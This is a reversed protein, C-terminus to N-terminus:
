KHNFSDQYSLKNQQLLWKAFRIIQLFYSAIEYPELKKIFMDVHCNQCM